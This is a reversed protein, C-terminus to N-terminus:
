KASVSPISCHFICLHFAGVLHAAAANVQVAGHMYVAGFAAALRAALDARAAFSASSPISKFRFQTIAPMISVSKTRNKASPM